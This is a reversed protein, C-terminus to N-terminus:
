RPTGTEPRARKPTKAPPEEQEPKRVNGVQQSCGTGTYSARAKKGEASYM